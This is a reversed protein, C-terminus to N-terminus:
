TLKYKLWNYIKQVKKIVFFSIYLIGLFMSLLLLRLKRSWHHKWKYKIKVLINHKRVILHNKNRNLESKANNIQLEYRKKDDM